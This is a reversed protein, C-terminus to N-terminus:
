IIKETKDANLYTKLNGWLFLQFIIDTGEKSFDGLNQPFQSNMTGGPKRIEEKWLVFRSKILVGLRHVWHEEM